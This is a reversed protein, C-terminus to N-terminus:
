ANISSHARRVPNRAGSLTVSTFRALGAPTWRSNLATGIAPTLRVRQGPTLMWADGFAALFEGISGGLWSAM